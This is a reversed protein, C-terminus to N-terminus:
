VPPEKIALAQYYTGLWCMNLERLVNFAGAAATLSREAAADSKKKFARHRM